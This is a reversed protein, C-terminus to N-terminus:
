APSSLPREAPKRARLSYMLPISERQGPLVFTGPEEGPEMWPFAEWCLADFEHLFEIALGAQGIATVISGMRHSWEYTENHTTQATPDAYTGPDEWREPEPGRFYPYRLSLGSEAEDDFVHAFPHGERLYLFGGPKLLAAVTEAWRPLDPLWVLVGRSTYVIDFTRGPLADVADYVNAEVFEADLGAEAALEGAAAIAPASFDLGTATAGLRAWSLTDMGFHCQLHLLSKGTVSGVEEIEGAELVNRGALFGEVDYFPTRRHIPVREDWHRRNAAFHAENSM